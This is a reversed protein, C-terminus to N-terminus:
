DVEYTYLRQRHQAYQQASCHETWAALRGPGGTEKGKKVKKCCGFEIARETNLAVVRRARWNGSGPAM